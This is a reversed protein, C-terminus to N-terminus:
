RALERRLYAQAFRWDREVTRATVGHIEAIEAESLGAYARLLAVEAQRPHEAGLRDMAASLALLDVPDSGEAVARSVAEEDLAAPREGGGRKRAADVVIDRMARAAAGFFHARGEFRAPADVLAVFADHVLATPQLTQGPPLRRLRAAALARLEDYVVPFLDRGLDARGERVAALLMTVTRAEM